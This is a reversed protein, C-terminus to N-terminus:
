RRSLRLNHDQPLEEFFSMSIQYNRQGLEERLDEDNDKAAQREYKHLKSKAIVEKMVEQRSKKREPRDGSADDEDDDSEEEGSLRRRKKSLREEDSTHDEADSLKLDVEDFDDVIAPGDLSLSQGMHTLEGPMDEEELDFASSKSHRLQKERTFRELMKEEPAMRPDNEGFRKDLIGGM